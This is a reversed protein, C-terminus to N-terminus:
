TGRILERAPSGRPLLRRRAELAAEAREVLLVDRLGVGAAIEVKEFSCRWGGLGLDV